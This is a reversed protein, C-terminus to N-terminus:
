PTRALAELYVERTQRATRTWSFDRARTLAQTRLGALWQPRTAAAVLAEAWERAARADLHVAAGGTVELIAPDRSAIVAAGCQMAELVPLAFGEYFSPYLFAVAGSYLAPLADDSVEGPLRLGPEAPLAPFDARRRGALVLDVEALRRAARWAEILMLLNKRPELAGVYLFYPPHSPTEVPQFHPAAAEPVAVVRNTSLHFFDVAQRRVAESPTIVMTALGLRLLAPTRRRVRGAAEHWEPNMWPSLDHVTLVSPRLPLWPVEFNAGHFLEVGHRALERNLGWLFWRRGLASQPGVGAKLNPAAPATFPHDSVLLYDDAPFTGALARSLEWVYRRLGGSSLSLPAADLAVRM